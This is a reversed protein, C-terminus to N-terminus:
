AGKEMAEYEQVEIPIDVPESSTVVQQTPPFICDAAANHNPKQCHQESNVIHYCEESYHGYVCRHIKKAEEELHHVGVQSINTQVFNFIDVPLSEPIATKSASDGPSQKKRRDRLNTVERANWPPHPSNKEGVDKHEVSEWDIHVKLVSLNSKPAISLVGIHQKSAVVETLFHVHKERKDCFCEKDPPDNTTSSTWLILILL